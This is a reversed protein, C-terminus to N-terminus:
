QSSQQGHRHLSYLLFGSVPILSASCSRMLCAQDQYLVYYSQSTILMDSRLHLVCYMKSTIKILLFVFDFDVNQIDFRSM